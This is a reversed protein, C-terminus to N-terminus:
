EPSRELFRDAQEILAGPDADFPRATAGLLDVDKRVLARGADPVERDPRRRVVSRTSPRSRPRFPGAGLDSRGCIGVLDPGAAPLRPSAGPGGIDGLGTFGARTVGM